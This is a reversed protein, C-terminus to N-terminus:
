NNSTPSTTRIYTPYGKMKGQVFEKARVVPFASAPSITLREICLTGGVITKDRGDKLGGGRVGAHRGYFQAVM